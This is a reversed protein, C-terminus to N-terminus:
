SPKKPSKSELLEIRTEHNDFQKFAVVREEDLRKYAGVLFNLSKLVQEKFEKFDLKFEELPELRYDIYNIVRDISTKLEEKTVFIKELKTVDQDTIM